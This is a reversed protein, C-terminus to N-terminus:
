SFGATYFRSPPHAFPFPPPPARKENAKLGAEGLWDAFLWDEFGLWDFGFGFIVVSLFFSASRRCVCTRGATGSARGRM